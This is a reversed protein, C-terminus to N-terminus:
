GTKSPIKCTITKDIAYLKGKYYFGSNKGKVPQITLTSGNFNVKAVMNVKPQDKEDM